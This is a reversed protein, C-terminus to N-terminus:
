HGQVDYLGGVRATEATASTATNDIERHKNERLDRSVYDSDPSKQSDTACKSTVEDRFQLPCLIFLLLWSEAQLATVSARSHV